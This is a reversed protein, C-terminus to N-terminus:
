PMAFSIWMQAGGAHLLSRPEREELVLQIGQDLSQETGRLCVKGVEEEKSLFSM